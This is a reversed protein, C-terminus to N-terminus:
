SWGQRNPIDLNWLGAIDKLKVLTTEVNLKGDAAL